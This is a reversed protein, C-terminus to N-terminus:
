KGSGYINGAARVAGAVGETFLKDGGSEYYNPQRTQDTFAASAFDRAFQIQREEDIQQQALRAALSQEQLRTAYDTFSGFDLFSLAKEQQREAVSRDSEIVSQIKAFQENRAQRDAEEAIRFSFADARQGRILNGNADFQASDAAIAPAQLELSRQFRSVADDKLAIENRRDILEKGVGGSLNDFVVNFTDVNKRSAQDAISQAFDFDEQRTNRFAEKLEPDNLAAVREAVFDRFTIGPREEVLKNYADIAKSFEKAAEARREEEDSQADAALKENYKREDSEKKAGYASAALSAALALFQVWGVVVPAETSQLSLCCVVSWFLTNIWKNM